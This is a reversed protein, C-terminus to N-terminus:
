DGLSKFEWISLVNQAKYGSLKKNLIFIKNGLSARLHSSVFDTNKFHITDIQNFSEDLVAFNTVRDEFRGAGKSLEGTQVEVVCFDKLAYVEM